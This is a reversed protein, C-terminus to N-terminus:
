VRSLNRFTRRLAELGVEWVGGRREEKQGTSIVFKQFGVGSEEPCPVFEMRRLPEPNELIVM